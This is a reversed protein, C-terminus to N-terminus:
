VIKESAGSSIMTIEIAPITNPSSAARPSTIACTWPTIPWSPASVIEPSRSAELLGRVPIM